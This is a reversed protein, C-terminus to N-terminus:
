PLATDLGSALWGGAAPHATTKERFAKWVKRVRDSGKGRTHGIYLIGHADTKGNVRSLSLPEGINSYALAWYVGPGEPLNDETIRHYTMCDAEGDTEGYWTFIAGM